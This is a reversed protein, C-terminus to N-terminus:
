WTSEGLSIEWAEGYPGGERLAQGLVEGLQRGGWMMPRLFPEFRLANV